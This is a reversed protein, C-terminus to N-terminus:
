YRFHTIRYIWARGIGYLVVVGGMVPWFLPDSFKSTYYGPSMMGLALVMLIPLVTLLLASTRGESSLAYVRKALSSRGRIVAALNELIEALNGGTQIQIAVSVALFQADESGTRRAFNALADKLEYGYTAEDVVLGFESGIPDGMENAALHIASIVPHGARLGRIIVDLATPIQEELLKERSRRRRQLWIWAILLVVGFSAFLAFIGAAVGSGVILISVIWLVTGSAIILSLFRVAPMAIGARSLHLELRHLLVAGPLKAFVSDSQKRVLAGYVAGPEMGSGLMALRRNVERQRDRSAFVVGTMAQVFLVVALFALVYVLPSIGDQM